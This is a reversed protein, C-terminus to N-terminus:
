YRRTIAEWLGIFRQQAAEALFLTNLHETEPELTNTFSYGPPHHLDLVLGLGADQCWTLCNDIYEFGQELYDGPADDSELVPYDIPLRVHDLGWGAIQRIDVSTIFTQFHSHAFTKYQSLWGGLNVGAQFQHHINTM